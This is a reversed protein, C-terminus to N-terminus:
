KEVIVPDNKDFLLTEKRDGIQEYLTEKAGVMTHPKEM